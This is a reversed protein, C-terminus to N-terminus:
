AEPSQHQKEIFEEIDAVAQEFSELDFEAEPHAKAPLHGDKQPQVPSHEPTQLTEQLQDLSEIFAQAAAHRLNQQRQNM